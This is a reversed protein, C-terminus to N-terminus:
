KKKSALAIQGEILAIMAKTAEVADEQRVLKSKERVLASDLANSM